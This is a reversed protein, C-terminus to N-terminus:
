FNQSKLTEEQARVHSFLMNDSCQLISKVMHVTGGDVDYISIVEDIRRESIEVGISKMLMMLEYKDLQGAFCM